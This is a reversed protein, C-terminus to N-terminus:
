CSFLHETIKIQEFCVHQVQIYHGYHVINSVVFQLHSVSRVTAAKISSVVGITLGTIIGLVVIIVVGVAIFIFLMVVMCSLFEIDIHVIDELFLANQKYSYTPLFHDVNFVRSSEHEIVHM